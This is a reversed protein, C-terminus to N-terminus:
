DGGSAIYVYWKGDEEIVPTARWGSPDDITTSISLTTSNSWLTAFSQGSDFPNAPDTNTQCVTSGLGCNTGTGTVLAETGDVVSYGIAMNKWNVIEGIVFSGLEGPGDGFATVLSCRAQSEPDVYACMASYNGAEISGM